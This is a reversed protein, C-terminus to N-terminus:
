MTILLEGTTDVWGSYVEVCVTRCWPAYEVISCWPCYDILAREGNCWSAADDDLGPPTEFRFRLWDSDWEFADALRQRFDEATWGLIASFREQRREITGNNVEKINLIIDVREQVLRDRWIEAARAAIRHVLEANGSFPGVDAGLMHCLAILDRPSANGLTPLDLRGDLRWEAMGGHRRASIALPHPGPSGACNHGVSHQKLWFQWPVFRTASIVQKPSGSGSAAFPPTDGSAQTNHGQVLVNM